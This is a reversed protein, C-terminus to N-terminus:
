MRVARLSESRATKERFTLNCNIPSNSICAYPRGKRDGKTGPINQAVALTAGVRIQIKTAYCRKERM